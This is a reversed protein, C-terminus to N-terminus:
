KICRLYLWRKMVTTTAAEKSQSPIMIPNVTPSARVRPIISMGPLHAQRNGTQTLLLAALGPKPRPSDSFPRRMRRNSRSQKGSINSRVNSRAMSVSCLTASVITRSRM